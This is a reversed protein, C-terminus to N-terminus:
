FITAFLITLLGLIMLYVSFYIFHQTKLRKLFVHLALYTSVGAICTAVITATFQEINIFTITEGITLSEVLFAGLTIPLFMLFSFEKAQKLALGSLRGGFLTMGSRSVGPFIGLVQFLGSVLAQKFGIPSSPAEQFRGLGYIISSTILFGVGVVWLESFIIEILPQLFLGALAAPFTALAIWLILQVDQVHHVPTTNFRFGNLALTYLSTALRWLLPFFYITLAILSGLHLFLTFTLFNAEPFQFLHQFLALHGSSSIPLIESIGQVLGLFIYQLWELLTM